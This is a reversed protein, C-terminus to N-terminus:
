RVTKAQSGFNERMNEKNEEQNGVIIERGRKGRLEGENKGYDSKGELTKSYATKEKEKSCSRKEGKHYSGQGSQETNKNEKNHLPDGKNRGFMNQQNAKFLLKSKEQNLGRGNRYELQVNDRSRKETLIKQKELRSGGTM